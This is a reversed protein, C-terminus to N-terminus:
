AMCFGNLTMHAVANGLDDCIRVEATKVSHGEKIPLVTAILEEGKCRGLYSITASLSVTDIQNRNCFVAFAFDGLTFSVGGMVMGHGNVHVPRIELSCVAFGDGCSDIQAGVAEIAFRDATYCARMEELSRVGESM